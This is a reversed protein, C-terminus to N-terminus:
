KLPVIVPAIIVSAITPQLPNDGYRVTRGRDNVGVFLCQAGAEPASLQGTVPVLLMQDFGALRVLLAREGQKSEVIRQVSGFFFVGVGPRTIEKEAFENLVIIQGGDNWRHQHLQAVVRDAEKVLDDLRDGLEKKTTFHESANALTVGWALHQLRAYDSWENVQWKLERAEDALQQLKKATTQWTADRVRAEALAFRELPETETFRNTILSHIAAVPLAYSYDTQRDIWINVGIVEGQENALPGGSNGESLRATHQLWIPDADSATLEHVFRQLGAPLQSTKVLRSVKGDFPSFEIGQPHGWAVVPTLQEPANKALTVPVLSSPSEELQLLALDSQSDIAAYGEV